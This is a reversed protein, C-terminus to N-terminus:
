KIPGLIERLADKDANCQRVAKKLGLVYVAAEDQM